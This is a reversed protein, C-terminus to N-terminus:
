NKNTNIWNAIDNIVKTDVSGKLMYEQPTSLGDGTMFLHNLKPYLMFSVNSVEKLSEKWLNYEDTTVQYDRDGQLILVPESIKKAEVASNYDKLYLWYEKEVGLLESKDLVSDSRLSKINDRQKKLTDISKKENDDINGDLSYIYEYQKVILDEMPTVSGCIIIYGKIDRSNDAIQPILYGGLSHGLIYIDSKSTLNNSKLFEAALVADNITEEFPTLKTNSNLFKNQYVYTRKDYRFTGIGKNALELAIDRFPANPGITENRDNPGSGHVLIVIPPNEKDGPLLLTGPLEWDKEGFTVEIGKENVADDKITEKMDVKSINIGAILEEEFVINISVFANKFDVPVVLIEYIDQKLTATNKIANFEGYNALLIKWFQNKYFAESIVEKMKDTYKYNDVADKYNGESIDNILAVGTEEFNFDEKIDETTNNITTNESTINNDKNNQGCGASLLLLIILLFLLIKKM